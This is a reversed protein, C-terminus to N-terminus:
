TGPKGPSYDRQAHPLLAALSMLMPKYEGRAFLPAQDAYHPSMDDLTAAGYQHISKLNLQGQLDWDAVMIHTDGAFAKLIGTQTFDEHAGYIARLVDPAGDLPLDLNGRSLRNIEGWAPNLSGYHEMLDQATRQLAEKPMMINEDFQYGLARTASIVALAAQRNGQDTAGDWQRLVAQAEVLLPQRFSQECLQDIFRRMISEPAYLVDARYRVLEEASISKDRAFLAMARLARNTVRQEIGFTSSYEERRHNDAWDTIMFPTANASFVWGSKPNITRPLDSPSHYERWILESNDGPLYEQWDLGEIRDPMRANYFHGINGAKDAYIINFSLVGNIELAALWKELSDARSMQYWQELAKIDQLGAFRLAYYGSPATVVPGHASWLVERRVPWSFGGFLKVRFHSYTRVFPIWQGDLLYSTPNKNRDVKLAYIDVLDPRNVTQTWGHTLTVGQTLIPAGPFTGGAMNLGEESVMHAEYWAYLGSMPQHSNVVLRTHGDSTRHPALAFGNSGHVYEPLNHLSQRRWPSVDPRDQAQMLASLAEDMRFFFPTAWTVGAVIDEGTVPLFGKYTESAHELGYLNLGDAYAEVMARIQPSLDRSYKEVVAERVKFLDYLYDSAVVSWGLYQASMGRAGLLSKQINVWDDESHAYALGFATDADRKGFIHAVGWQDRLIRVEYGAARHRITQGDLGAGYPTRLWIVGGLGILLCLLWFVSWWGRLGRYM